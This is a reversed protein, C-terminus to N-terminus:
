RSAANSHGLSALAESTGEWDTMKAALEARCADREREAEAMVEWSTQEYYDPRAFLTEMDALKREM